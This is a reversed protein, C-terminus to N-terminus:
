KMTSLIQPLNAIAYLPINCLWEEQRYDSMSTRISIAPSYKEHYVRLSRARLNESAKVEVPIIKGDFQIIFDIESRANDPSWYYVSNVNNAKLQQLVYQETIAGKFEEFVANGELLTKPDLDTMAGLLGVDVLYLKFASIDEYAKLPIAPKSINNVKHILGCDLLWSMAIEYDKARAGQKIAGYIFKRNEKALQSPVANWLMRIRPVVSAPAHKSFDQEYSYLIRQQITRAKTFDKENAFSQVVEPMGGIFYYQRLLDILNSKFGTVLEWDQKKIIEALPKENIAELFEIFDLPYLDMFEVKGVPFSTQQNLAVGLLSGASVINFEPANEHFYKLSTLAGSAEQIEDFILLTNAPDIQTNTAIQIATIIRRIDFDEEFMSRLTTNSEFNVYVSQKYTKGFEKMLWTKGVQRAGRIIMPKRGKSQKWALLRKIENRYM